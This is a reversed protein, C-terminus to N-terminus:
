YLLSTSPVMITFMIRYSHWVVAILEEAQVCYHWLFYKLNLETSLGYPTLPKLPYLWCSKGKLVKVKLNGSRWSYYHLYIFLYISLDIHDNEIGVTYLTFFLHFLDKKFILLFPSNRNKCRTVETSQEAWKIDKMLMELQILAKYFPNQWIELSASAKWHIM